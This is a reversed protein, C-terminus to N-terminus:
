RSAPGPHPKFVWLRNGFFSILMTLLTAVIKAPVLRMQLLSHCLFVLLVSLALALLNLTAFKVMEGPNSGTVGFTWYKNCVYSNAIGCSYSCIQALLYPMSFRSLLFFLSFDVATNLVGVLNFRVLQRMLFSLGSRGPMPDLLKTDTDDRM